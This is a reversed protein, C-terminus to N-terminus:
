STSPAKQNVLLIESLQDITIKRRLVGRKLTEASAKINDLAQVYALEEPKLNVPKRLAPKRRRRQSAAVTIQKMFADRDISLAADRLLPWSRSWNVTFTLADPTEGSAALLRVRVLQKYQPSQAFLKEGAILVPDQPWAWGNASRRPNRIDAEKRLLLALALRVARDQLRKGYAIWRCVTYTAMEEDLVKVFDSPLKANIRRLQAQKQLSFTALHMSVALRKAWKIPSEDANPSSTAAQVNATKIV